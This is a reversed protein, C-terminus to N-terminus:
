QTDIFGFRSEARGRLLLLEPIGIIVITLKHLVTAQCYDGWM